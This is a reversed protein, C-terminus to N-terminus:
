PAIIWGDDQRRVAVGLLPGLAAPDAKIPDILVSGSIRRQAAKPAVAFTVGSARTLQAAVEGLSEDRFTLRGERWEGVLAPPLASREIRESEDRRVAQEGPRVMLKQRAPNFLVAGESVALTTVGESRRVDFVTGADVLRDEGVALEFPHDADHRIEFLAQGRELRAARDDTVALRTDGALTITSGDELAISRTEGPATSYSTGGRLQFLGLTAILALSAAIAGGLWARRRHRSPEAAEVDNAQQPSELPLGAEAVSDVAAVIRDYAAANAPDAELWLTFGPWDDFAPDATRVAWLAADDDRLKPDTAM